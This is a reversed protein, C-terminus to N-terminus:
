LTSLTIRGSIRSLKVNGPLSVEKQGHWDSILAEASAIHDASLMGSPAGAKYIALRLVRTRIAKPLRELEAVDLNSADAQSFYQNAFDDLADADDRLLDATRALAETIGPGLNEEFIPLLNKRVKVRAFREDLNHPDDWVKIGAEICAAATQARTNKLLPRVFINNVTAMGSLSRAGSGRALGLLVSEAQDNLTHALMFYKPQYSDIFQKFILYRARRASAELGDTVEVNARATAVESYGLEKLKAVTQAAIEASNSQLGHDVVVPIIKSNNSEKLLAAALAMSDTGGSCGFLITEGSVWPKVSKRIEWLSM